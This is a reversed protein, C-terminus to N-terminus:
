LSNAAIVLQLWEDVTTRPLVDEGADIGAKEAVQETVWEQGRFFAVEADNCSLFRGATIREDYNDCYNGGRFQTSVTVGNTLTIHFGGESTIKFM